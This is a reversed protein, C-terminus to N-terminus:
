KSIFPLPQETKRVIGKFVFSLAITIIGVTFIIMYADTGLIGLLSGYIIQGIPTACMTLSTALAMVKGLMENPTNKQIYVILIINVIMCFFMSIVIASTFGIFLLTNQKDSNILPGFISISGMIMMLGMMLIGWWSKKLTALRSLFTISIAGFIGGLAIAGQAFGLLRDDVHLIIKIIYPVAVTIAPTVILNILVCFIGIKLLLPMEKSIFHLSEKMDSFFTKIAGHVAVTKKFPIYLFIEMVASLFFSISSIIVVMEIGWTAYLLGGLVPGAFQSLSSVQSVVGNAKTLNDESSLVPLSAQVSPQYISSILSLLTIIVGVALVSGQGQFLFVAFLAVAISSSFDLIVMMKKRSFRDAIVGGVPSLLIMPLISIALIASFIAADGTLDLIYLSLAFRLIASGFLSIIQGVIMISFNQHFLKSTNLNKNILHMITVM